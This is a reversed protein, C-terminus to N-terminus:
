TLPLTADPKGSTRPRRLLIAALMGGVLGCIHGQWSINTVGFGISHWMMYGYALAVGISVMVDVPRRDVIGRSMLYGFYGFVLGSAGVSVSNAPSFLWVGAGGVVIVILNMQLFRRIDPVAAIIGLSFLPLANGALHELNGHVFPSFVIDVLSGPDRARIGGARTLARGSLANVLEVLWLLALVAVMLSAARGLPSGLSGDEKRIPEGSSGFPQVTM